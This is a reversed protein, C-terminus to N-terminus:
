ILPNIKSRTTHNDPIRLNDKDLLVVEQGDFAEVSLINMVAEICATAPTLTVPYNTSKRVRRDTISCVEINKRWSAPKLTTVGPPKSSGATGKPKFSNGALKRKRSFSAAALPSATAQSTPDMSEGQVTFNRCSVSDFLPFYGYNEHDELFGEDSILVISDPFLHFARGISKASLQGEKM